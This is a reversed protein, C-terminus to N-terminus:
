KAMRVNFRISKKEAYKEFVRQQSRDKELTDRTEGEEIVRGRGYKRAEVDPRHGQISRPKKFGPIDAWVNYGQERLTQSRERVQRDHKTQNAESRMAM